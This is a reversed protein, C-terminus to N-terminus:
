GAYASAKQDCWESLANSIFEPGYDSRINATLRVFSITNLDIDIRLVSSFCNGSRDVKKAFV